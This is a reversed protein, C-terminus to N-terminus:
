YQLKNSITDITVFKSHEIKAVFTKRFDTIIHYLQENYPFTAITLIGVSDMVQRFGKTSKSENDGAYRIITKGEKIRPKPLKFISLSDPNDVEIIESYGSLHALTNTIVYKGNLKNVVVPCTASCAYEIGTQKNKFKITGGWEGSCTKSVIYLDDEFFNQNQRTFDKQTKKQSQTNVIESTEFLKGSQGFTNSFSITVLILFYKSKM